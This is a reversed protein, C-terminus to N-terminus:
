QAAEMIAICERRWVRSPENSVVKALDYQLQNLTYTTVGNVPDCEICWPRTIIKHCQPCIRQGRVGVPKKKYQFSTAIIPESVLKDLFDSFDRTVCREAKRWNSEGDKKHFTDSDQQSNHEVEIYSVGPNRWRKTIRM